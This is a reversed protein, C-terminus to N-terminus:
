KQNEKECRKCNSSIEGDVFHDVMELGDISTYEKGEYTTYAGPRFWGARKCMTCKILEAVYGYGGCSSCSSSKGDCMQCLLTKSLTPQKVKM